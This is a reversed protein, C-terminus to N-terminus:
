QVNKWIQRLRIRSIHERSVGFRVSISLNGEGSEAARRIAQVDQRTLKISNGIRRNQSQEEATAWRCNGPEYNGDNNIRDITMGHPRPGVDAIFDEFSNRWRSCVKIGRAGYYEWSPDAEYECRAIMSQWSYYTPSNWQGHQLNQTSIRETRACGCSMTDGSLLHRAEVSKSVGCDCVCPRVPNAM